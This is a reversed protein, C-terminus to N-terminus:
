RILEPYGYRKLLSRCGGPHNDIARYVGRRMSPPPPYGVGNRAGYLMGQGEVDDYSLFKRRWYADVLEAAQAGNLTGLMEACTGVVIGISVHNNFYKTDKGQALSTQGTSSVASLFSATLVSIFLSKGTRM